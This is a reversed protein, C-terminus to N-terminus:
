DWDLGGICWIYLFSVSLEFIFEMMSFYGVSNIYPLASCWPILYMTELDFIIFLMAIIYFKVDFKQRADEYPEFGCEYASMKETEPNQVVFIYSFGLIVYSLLISFFLYILITSYEATIILSEFTNHIITNYFYNPWILEYLIEDNLLDLLELKKESADSESRVNLVSFYYEHLYFVLNNKIPELMDSSLIAFSRDNLFDDVISELREFHRIYANTHENVIFNFTDEPTTNHLDIKDCCEAAPEFVQEKWYRLIRGIERREYAAAGENVLFNFTEEPSGMAADLKACYEPTYESVYGKWSEWTESRDLLIGDAKKRVEDKLSDCISELMNQDLRKVKVDDGEILADLYENLLSEFLEILKEKRECADLHENVYFNIIEEPTTLAELKDYYEPSHEQCPIEWSKISELEERMFEEFTVSMNIKDCEESDHSKVIGKCVGIQEKSTKDVGSLFVNSVLRDTSNYEVTSCSKFPWIQFFVGGISKKDLVIKLYTYACKARRYVEHYKMVMYQYNMKIM